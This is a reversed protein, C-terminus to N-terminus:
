STTTAVGLFIKGLLHKKLLAFDLSDVNGDKNVDANSSVMKIKGLLYKRLIVYDFSDINGDENVDGPLTYSQESKDIDMSFKTLEASGISEYGEVFFSIEYFKGLEMGLAEWAKFHESVSVTGSTRPERRVSWYLKFRTDGVIRNQEYIDYESGDVTITDKLPLNGPPKWNYWSEIIYCEIRPNETWGYVGVFTHGPEVAESRYNCEYNLSINGIEQHTLTMDYKYGYKFLINNIDSWECSFGVEGEKLEMIGKGINKWYEYDYGEHTGKENSTVTKAQVSIPFLSIFLTFSLLVSLRRM